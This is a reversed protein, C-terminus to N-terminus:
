EALVWRVVAILTLIFVLTFIVGALIYPVISSQQFDREHNRQSQVGFAAALTTLMLAVIGPKTNKASDHTNEDSM